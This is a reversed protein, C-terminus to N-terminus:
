SCRSTSFGWPETEILTSLRAAGILEAARPDDGRPRRPEVGLGVYALTVATRGHRRQVRGDHRGAAGAAQARARPGARRSGSALADAVATALAELLHFRTDNSLERVRRRRRPLRGRGRAPRRRRARRGRAGRRLPLSAARQEEELVGHYGYVELGHLELDGRVAKAAALAEVHERVDHVRLITAGRDYRRSRPASRRRRRGTTAEPDGLLRGALEQALLRDAGTTRARVLEDLRRVLEFNHEVTKGFGIGPDLCIREEAIGPQSPSRSGSRSSVGERRLRRRRLGPEDQM